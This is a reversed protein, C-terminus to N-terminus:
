GAPPPSSWTPRAAGPSTASRRRPPRPGAGERDHRLHEGVAEDGASEPAIPESRTSRPDRRRAQDRRPVDAALRRGPAPRAQPHHRRRQRRLHLPPRQGVTVAHLAVIGPKRMLLESGGLVVADWLSDPSVGGNLLEVAEASAAEPTAQRIAELLAVTAAPDPKGAQWDDRIKKAHELNAEYPGVAVPRCDGQLDLMGFALSRLVPEAHQWGIAQLTRWCQAAFIAKHGINRQDRVAYRWFPEMTEAAGSPGASGPPPSTPRTPTGPRWRRSSRPRPRRRAPSRAVRRGQRADLGGGQRGAAQSNKFNDLAWLLPLLREDVAATQGLLHASNIVLVAHFKFGVPGRSSTASARWSCARLAPRPVLARGQPPRHGVDIVKDRPTEEIWRVVPEIEPRFRVADPGVAM